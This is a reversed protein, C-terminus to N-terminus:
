FISQSLNSAQIKTEHKPPQLLNLKIVEGGPIAVQFVVEIGHVVEPKAASPSLTEIKFSTNRQDTAFPLLAPSFFSSESGTDWLCNVKITDQGNLLTLVSTLLTGSGLSGKNVSDFAWTSAQEDEAHDLRM